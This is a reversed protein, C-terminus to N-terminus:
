WFEYTPYSKAKRNVIIKQESPNGKIYYEYTQNKGIIKATGFQKNTIKILFNTNQLLEEVEDLLLASTLDIDYNKINLSIM